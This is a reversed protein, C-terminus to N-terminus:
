DRSPAEPSRRGLVASSIAGQLPLARPIHEKPLLLTTSVGPVAVRVRRGGHRLAEAPATPACKARALGIEVALQSGGEAGGSAHEAGLSLDVLRVRPDTDRRRPLPRDMPSGRPHARCSIRGCRAAASIAGREHWPGSRRPGVREDWARKYYAGVAQKIAGDRIVLFRWRQMNGGSAACVGAELIKRILENPVPDPKLRRTSRTSRIIEFLDASNPPAESM